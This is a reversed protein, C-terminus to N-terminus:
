YDLQTVTVRIHSCLQATNGYAQWSLNELGTVNKLKFYFM